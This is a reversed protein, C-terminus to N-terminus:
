IVGYINLSVYAFGSVDFKPDDPRTYPKLAGQLEM